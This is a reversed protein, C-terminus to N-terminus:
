EKTGSIEFSYKDIKKEIVLVNFKRNKFFDHSKFESIFDSIDSEILGFGKIVMKNESLGFMEIQIKHNVASLSLSIMLDVFKKNNASLLTDTNLLNQKFLMLSAIENDDGSSVEKLKVKMEDVKKTLETYQTDYEKNKTALKKGSWELYSSVSVIAFLLLAALMGVKKLGVSGQVTAKEEKFLNIYEM